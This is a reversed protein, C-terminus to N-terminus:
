ENRFTWVWAGEEVHREIYRFTDVQQAKSTILKFKCKKGWVAGPIEDRISHSSAIKIRGVLARVDSAPFRGIGHVHDSMVALVLLPIDKREAELIMARGARERMAPSLRVPAKHM